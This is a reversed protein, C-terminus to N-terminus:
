SVKALSLGKRLADALQTRSSSVDDERIGVVENIRVTPAPVYKFWAGNISPEDTQSKASVLIIFCDEGYRKRLKSCIWLGEPDRMQPPDTLCLDVIAVDVSITDIVGAGNLLADVWQERRIDDIPDNRQPVQIQFWPSENLARPLLSSTPRYNRLVGKVISVIWSLQKPDDDLVLVNCM